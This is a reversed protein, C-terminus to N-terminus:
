RKPAQVLGTGVDEEEAGSALPSIDGSAVVKAMLTSSDAKGGTQQRLKQAWLAAVGAVHPAAMSTGSRRSLGGGLRASLVGVGPASIDVQTNSFSAVSLGSRGKQLAGVAVVGIAAAPPAVAIEFKPRKSENGSAAVIVTGQRFVSQSHVFAVLADFLNINARYEELARSIAPKIGLGRDVLREVYGPFDLGLSMSVVHAGEDVAWQIAEALALSSAGQGLVKGIFAHKIKPAVGIRVGGVKGGFITGACHTGHGHEDGAPGSTFNRETVQIDKFAAHKSDIGTDLVAVVIGDGEFPSGDRVADVGWTVPNTPPEATARSDVPEILKVPMPPATAMTRPDRRLDALQTKNLPVEKLSVTEADTSAPGVGVPGGMSAAPRAMPNSRRLVIYKEPEPM